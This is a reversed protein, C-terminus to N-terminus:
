NDFGSIDFIVPAGDERIGYNGTHCDSIIEPAENEAWDIFENWADEGYFDYVLAVWERNFNTCDKKASELSDKSPNVVNYVNFMPKVKEQVYIRRGCEDCLYMMDPVFYGFGADQALQTTILETDCYDNYCSGGGCNFESFEMITEYTDYDESEYWQGDFPIKIVFPLVSLIIVAKSVGYEVEVKVNEDVIDKLQKYLDDAADEGGFEYDPIDLQSIIDRAYDLDKESFEM